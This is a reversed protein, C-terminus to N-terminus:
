CGISKAPFKFRVSTIAAMLDYQGSIKSIFAKTALLTAQDIDAKTTMKVGMNPLTVIVKEGSLNSWRQLALVVHGGDFVVLDRALRLREVSPSQRLTPRCM